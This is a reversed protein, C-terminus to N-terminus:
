LCYDRHFSWDYNSGRRSEAANTTAEARQEDDGNGNGNGDAMADTYRVHLCELLWDYEGYINLQALVWSKGSGRSSRLDLGDTIMTAANSTRPMSQLKQERYWLRRHHDIMYSRTDIKYAEWSITVWVMYICAHKHEGVGEHMAKYALRSIQYGRMCGTARARHGDTTINMRRWYRGLLSSPRWYPQEANTETLRQTFM